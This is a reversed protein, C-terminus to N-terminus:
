QIDDLPQTMGEEGLMTRLRDELLVFASRVAEDYAGLHLLTACRRFLEDDMSVQSELAERLRNLETDTLIMTHMVKM